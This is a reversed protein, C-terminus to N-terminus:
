DAERLDKPFFCYFLRVNTLKAPKAAPNLGNLAKKSYVLSILHVSVMRYYSVLMGEIADLCSFALGALVDFRHTTRNM